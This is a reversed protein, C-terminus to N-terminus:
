CLAWPGQSVTVPSSKTAVCVKVELVSWVLHAFDPASKPLDVGQRVPHLRPRDHHRQHAQRRRHRFRRQSGFKLPGPAPTATAPTKSTATKTAKSQPKDDASNSRRALAAVAARRAHM